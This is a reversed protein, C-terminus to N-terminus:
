KSFHLGILLLYKLTPTTFSAYTCVNPWAISQSLELSDLQPM